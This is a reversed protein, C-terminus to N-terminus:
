TVDIAGQPDLKKLIEDFDALDEPATNGDVGATVHGRDEIAAFLGETGGIGTVGAAGSGSAALEGEVM